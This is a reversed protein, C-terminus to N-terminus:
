LWHNPIWLKWINKTKQCESFGGVTSALSLPLSSADMETWTQFKGLYYWAPYDPLLQLFNMTVYVGIIRLDQYECRQLIRDWQTSATGTIWFFLFSTSRHWKWSQNMFSKSKQRALGRKLRWNIPKSLILLSKQSPWMSLIDPSQCVAIFQINTDGM